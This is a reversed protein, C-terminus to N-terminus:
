VFGLIRIIYIGVTYTIISMMSTIIVINSALHEDSGMSAAMVYSVIATPSGYLFFLVIIGEPSIGFRVALPLFILPMAFLKLASATLALSLREKLRSYSLNAGIVILALPTALVEIMNISSDFVQPMNVPILSFLIGALIGIILPNTAISQFISVLAKKYEMKQKGYITLIIVTLINFLPVIIIIVTLALTPMYGLVAPILSIGIIIYNGRFSGQIFAGKKKRDPVFWEAIAWCIFVFVLVSCITFAIFRFDLMQSFDSIYVDAFLKVPLVVKFVIANLQMATSTSILGTKRIVLGLLMILFIPMVANLSFVLNNLM